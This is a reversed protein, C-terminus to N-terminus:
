IGAWRRLRGRIPQFIDVHVWGSKEYLGLGGLEPLRGAKYEGLIIDHLQKANLMGLAKIDAAEGKCHRSGSAVQHSTSSAVLNSNYKDTRYGSVIRIPMKVIDRIKDLLGTLTRYTVIWEEPYPTGDKCALEKPKFWKSDPLRTAKPLM